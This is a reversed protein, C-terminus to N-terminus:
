LPVETIWVWVIVSTASMNRVRISAYESFLMGGYLPELLHTQASPYAFAASTSGLRAHQFRMGFEGPWLATASGTALQGVTFTDTSAISPSAVAPYFNSTNLSDALGSVNKRVSIALNPTVTAAGPSQTVCKVTISYLRGTLPIIASSDASSATITRGDLVAWTKALSYPPTADVVKANGSADVVAGSKTNFNVGGQTQYNYTNSDGSATAAVAMFALAGAAIKMWKVM